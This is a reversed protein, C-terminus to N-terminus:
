VKSFIDKEEGLDRAAPTIITKPTIYIREGDRLAKRVDDESVFDVPTPKAGNTSAPRLEHIITKVPSESKPTEAAPPAAAEPEPPTAPQKSLKQSLFRDVIAAIEERKILPRGEGGNAAVRTLAAPTTQKTSVPRTEFAVRKIDMLHIPSVNDSTVNGGWSGCGLTMSPALDTSFGIAGHTTPSNIIVRSAPMQEGYVIAATRSKTHMGATHGM